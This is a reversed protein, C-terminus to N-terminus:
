EDTGPSEIARSRRLTMSIPRRGSRYQGSMEDGNLSGVFYRGGETVMAIDAGRIDISLVPDDHRVGTIVFSGHISGDATQSFDFRINEQEERIWNGLLRAQENDSLLNDLQGAVFGEKIFVGNRQSRGNLYDGFMVGTVMSGIFSRGNDTALTVLGAESVHIGALPVDRMGISAISLTGTIFGTGTETFALQVETGSLSMTWNGLLQEHLSLPLAFAFIRKKMQLPLEIGQQWVGTVVGDNLSGHFHAHQDEISFSISDGTVVLNDMPVAPYGMITPGMTGKLKGDSDVTFHWSVEQTRFSGAITGEWRGPLVNELSTQATVASVPVFLLLATLWATKV